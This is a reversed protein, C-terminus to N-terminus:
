QGLLLCSVINKKKIDNFSPLDGMLYGKLTQKSGPSLLRQHRMLTSQHRLWTLTMMRGSEFKCIDLSESMGHASEESMRFTDLHQTYGCPIVLLGGYIPM